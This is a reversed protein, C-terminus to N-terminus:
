KDLTNLNGTNTYRQELDTWPTEQDQRVTTCSEEPTPVPCCDYVMRRPLCLPFFLSMLSLAPTVSKRQQDQRIDMYNYISRTMKWHTLATHGADSPCAVDHPELFIINHDGKANNTWM